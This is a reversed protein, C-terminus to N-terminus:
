LKKERALETYQHYLFCSYVVALMEMIYILFFGFLGLNLSLMLRINDM